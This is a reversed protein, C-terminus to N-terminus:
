SLRGLDTWAAVCQDILQEGIPDELAQATRLVDQMEGLGIATLPELGRAHPGHGVCRRGIARDLGDEGTAEISQRQRAGSLAIENIAAVSAKLAVRLRQESEIEIGIVLDSM